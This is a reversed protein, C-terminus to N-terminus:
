HILSTDKFETSVSVAGPPNAREELDNTTQGRGLMMKDTDINIYIHIPM